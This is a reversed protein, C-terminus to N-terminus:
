ALSVEDLAVACRWDNLFWESPSKRVGELARTSVDEGWAAGFSALVTNRLECFSRKAILEVALSPNLAAMELTQAETNRTVTVMYHSHTKLRRPISSLLELHAGPAYIYEQFFCSAAYSVHCM